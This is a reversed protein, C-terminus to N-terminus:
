LDSYPLTKFFQTGLESQKETTTFAVMGSFSPICRPNGFGFPLGTETFDGVNDGVHGMANHGFLGM